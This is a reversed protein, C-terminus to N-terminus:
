FPYGIGFNWIAKKFRFDDSNFWPATLAPNHFPVAADVRFIFFSFDFRLGLGMDLAIQKYFSNLKFEGDPFDESKDRLWVNGGDVFVSGLLFSYIPFRQELSTQIMIDGTKDYRVEPAKFAGPGLSRLRWGRLDNAGGLWFSKEFPVANSNGYPM